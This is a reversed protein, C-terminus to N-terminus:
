RPVAVEMLVGTDVRGMTGLDRAFWMPSRPIRRLMRTGPVPQWMTDVPRHHSEFQLRLVRGTTSGTEDPM